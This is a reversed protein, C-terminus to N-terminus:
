PTPFRVAPLTYILFIDGIALKTIINYYIHAQLKPIDYSFTLSHRGLLDIDESTSPKQEERSHTVIWGFYHQYAKFIESFV